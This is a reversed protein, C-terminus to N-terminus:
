PAIHRMLITFDVALCKSLHTAEVDGKNLSELRTSTIDSM